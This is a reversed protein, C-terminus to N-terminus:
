HLVQHTNSGKALVLRSQRRHLLTTTEKGEVSQKCLLLYLFLCPFQLDRSSSLPQTSWSHTFEWVLCHHEKLIWDWSCTKGPATAPLPSQGWLGTPASPSGRGSCRCLLHCGRGPSSQWPPQQSDMDTSLTQVCTRTPSFPDPKNIWKLGKATRLVQNSHSTTDELVWCISLLGRLWASIESPRKKVKLDPQCSLEM